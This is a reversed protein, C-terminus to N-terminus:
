SFREMFYQIKCREIGFQSVSHALHIVNAQRIDETHDKSFLSDFRWITGCPRLVVNAISVFGKVM